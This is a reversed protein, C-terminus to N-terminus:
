GGSAYKDSPLSPSVLPCRDVGVMVWKCVQIGHMCTCTFPIDFLSEIVLVAGTVFYGFQWQEGGKGQEEVTGNSQGVEPGGDEERVRCGM